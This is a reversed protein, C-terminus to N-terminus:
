ALSDCSWIYLVTAEGRRPSRMTSSLDARLIYLTARDLHQSAGSQGISSAQLTQFQPTGAQVALARSALGLSVGCLLNATQSAVM